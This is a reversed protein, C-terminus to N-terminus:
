MFFLSSMANSLKGQHLGYYRCPRDYLGCGYNSIGNVMAAKKTRNGVKAATNAATKGVAKATEKIEM